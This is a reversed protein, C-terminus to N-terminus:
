TSSEILQAAEILDPLDFGETFWGYIQKLRRAEGGKGLTVWLRHLRVTARLEPLKAKQERAIERARLFCEEARKQRALQPRQTESLKLTLEGELVYLEPEWWREGSQKVLAYAEDLTDLGEAPQGARGNAEALLALFTPLGVGAGTSRFGILGERIEAIGEAIESDQARAWGRFVLAVPRWFGFDRSVKLAEEARELTM